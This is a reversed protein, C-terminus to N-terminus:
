SQVPNAFYTIDVVGDHFELRVRGGDPTYAGDIKEDMKKATAYPVNDLKIEMHYKSSRSPVQVVNGGEGMNHRLVVKRSQIDFVGDEYAVYFNAMNRYPSKLAEATVLAAANHEPSGNTMQYPWYSYYDYFRQNAEEIAVLQNATVEAESVLLTNSVEKWPVAVAGFITVSSVMAAAMVGEATSIGANKLTKKVM